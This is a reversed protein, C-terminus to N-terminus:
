AFSRKMVSQRFNAIHFILIVKTSLLRVQELVGVHVRAEADEPNRALAARKSRLADALSIVVRERAPDVRTAFIEGEIQHRVDPGFLEVGGVGGHKWTRLMEAM